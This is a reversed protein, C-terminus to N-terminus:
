PDENIQTVAIGAIANYLKQAGLVSYSTRESDSFERGSGAFYSALWEVGDEDADSAVHVAGGPQRTFWVDTTGMDGKWIRYFPNAARFRFGMSVDLADITSNRLRELSKGNIGIGAANFGRFGLNPAAWSGLSHNRPWPFVMLNGSRMSTEHLDPDQLRARARDGGYDKAEEAVHVEDLLRLFGVTLKQLYPGPDRALEDYTLKLAASRAAVDADSMTASSSNFATSESTFEAISQLKLAEVYCDIIDGDGALATASSEPVAALSSRVGKVLDDKNQRMVRHFVAEAAIDGAELGSLLVFERGFKNMGAALMGDIAAYALGGVGLSVIPIIAALLELGPRAEVSRATKEWADIRLNRLMMLATLWTGVQGANGVRARGVPPDPARQLASMVARNGALRQLDLLDEQPRHQHLGPTRGAPRGTRQPGLATEVPAPRQARM